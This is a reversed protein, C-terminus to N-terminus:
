PCLPVISHSSFPFHSVRFSSIKNSNFICRFYIQCCPFVHISKQIMANNVFQNGWLTMWFRNGYPFTYWLCQCVDCVPFLFYIWLDLEPALSTSAKFPLNLWLFSLTNDLGPDKSHLACSCRLDRPNLEHRSCCEDRRPVCFGSLQKPLWKYHTIKIIHNGFGSTALAWDKAWILVRM